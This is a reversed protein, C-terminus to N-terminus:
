IAHAFGARARNLETQIGLPEAELPMNSADHVADLAGEQDADLGAAIADLDNAGPGRAAVLEFTKRVAAHSRLSWVLVQALQQRSIVGDRPTGSQRKDGQLMLIRLQDSANMDFWGPRVITYPLGSARILREGRRKWDHAGKRDTVGITTM